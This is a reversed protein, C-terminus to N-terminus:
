RPAALLSLQQVGESDGGLLDEADTDEEDLVPNYDDVPSGGIDLSYDDEEDADAALIEDPTQPSNDAVVTM